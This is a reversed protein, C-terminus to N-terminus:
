DRGEGGQPLGGEVQGGPPHPSGHGFEPGRRGHGHVLFHRQGHRPHTETKPSPTARSLQPGEGPFGLTADFGRVRLTHTPKWRHWPHALHPTGGKTFGPAWDPGWGGQGAPQAAACARARGPPLGAGNAGAALTALTLTAFARAPCWAKAAEPSRPRAPGKPSPEALSDPSSPAPTVIGQRPPQDVGRVRLTGRHTVGPFGQVTFAGSRMAQLVVLLDQAEEASPPDLWISTPAEGESARRGQMM